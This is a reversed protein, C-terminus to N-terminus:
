DHIGICHITAFDQMLFSPQFGDLFMPINGNRGDILQHVIECGDVTHDNDPYIIVVESNERVIIMTLKQPFM